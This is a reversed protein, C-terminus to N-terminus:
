FPPLAGDCSGCSGGSLCRDVLAGCLVAACAPVCCAAPSPRRGCLLPLVSGPGSGCSHHSGVIFPLWLLAASAPACLARRFPPPPCCAHSLGFCWSLSPTTPPSPPVRSLGRRLCRPPSPGQTGGWFRRGCFCWHRLVTLGPFWAFLLQQRTRRTSGPWGPSLLTFLHQLEYGRFYPAVTSFVAPCRVCGM